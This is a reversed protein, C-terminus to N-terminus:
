DYGKISNEEKTITVKEWNALELESKSDTKSEINPDFNEVKLQKEPPLFVERKGKIKNERM